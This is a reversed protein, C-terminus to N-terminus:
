KNKERDAAIVAREYAFGDTWCGGLAHHKEYISGIEVDTLDKTRVPAAYLIAGVPAEYDSIGEFWDICAQDNVKGVAVPEMRESDSRQEAQGALNMKQLTNMAIILGNNQAVQDLGNGTPEKILQAELADYVEQYCDVMENAEGSHDLAEFTERIEKVKILAERARSKHWVTINSTPYVTAIDNLAVIAVDLALEMAAREKPTM